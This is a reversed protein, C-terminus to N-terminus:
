RPLLPTSLIESSAQLVLVLRRGDPSVCAKTGDREVLKVIENAAPQEPWRKLFAHAPSENLAQSTM